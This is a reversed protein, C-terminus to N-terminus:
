SGVSQQLYTTSVQMNRYTYIQETGYFAFREVSDIHCGEQYFVDCGYIAHVRPWLKTKGCDCRSLLKNLNEKRILHKNLNTYCSPKMTKRAIRNSKNETCNQHMDTTDNM